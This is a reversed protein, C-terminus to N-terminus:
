WKWAWLEALLDVSKTCQQYIVSRSCILIFVIESPNNMLIQTSFDKKNRALSHALRQNDGFLFINAAELATGLVLLGEAFRM